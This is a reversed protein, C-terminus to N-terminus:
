ACNVVGLIRQLAEKNEPPKLEYITKIKNYDLKVGINTM